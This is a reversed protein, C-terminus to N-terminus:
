HEDSGGRIQQTQRQDVSTASPIPQQEHPAAASGLKRLTNTLVHVGPERQAPATYEAPAHSIGNHSPVFLMASPVHRALVQADHGAGSPMSEWALQAITMEEGLLAQLSADMPAPSVSYTESVHACIGEEDAARRVIDRVFNELSAFRTPDAARVDVLLVAKGPVVNSGGPEITIQGVNATIDEAALAGDRLALVVRSACALADRRAHMPTAGAHNAQGLLEVRYGRMGVIDTVVATDLGKSEMHPGQEIHLELYCGVHHVAKASPLRDFDFGAASMGEALTVGDIGIRDRLGTLDEGVFASSGFLATDFRTGEEDNFAVLWIPREPQFGDRQLRRIAELGSLVGLTGDFKGGAPVSDLHSGVLVAPGSGASWKGLVNGAPDVEVQLDLERMRDALWDGAAVLEPTWAFRNM